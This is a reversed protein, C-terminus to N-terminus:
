AKVDKKNIKSNVQFFTTCLNNPGFTFFYFFLDMPEDRLEKCMYLEFTLEYPIAHFNAGMFLLM